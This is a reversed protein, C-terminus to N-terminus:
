TSPAPVVAGCKKCTRLSEDGYFKKHVQSVPDARYDGVTVEVEYVKEGCSECFWMFGDKEGTRRRREFVIFWADEPVRPSHPVGSPCLLM